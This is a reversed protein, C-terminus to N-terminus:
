LAKRSRAKLTQGGFVEFSAQRQDKLVAPYGRPYVRTKRLFIERYIARPPRPDISNSCFLVITRKQVM